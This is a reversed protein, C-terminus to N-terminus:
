LISIVFNFVHGTFQFMEIFAATGVIVAATGWFGYYIINELAKRM